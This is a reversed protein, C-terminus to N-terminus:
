AEGIGLISRSLFLQIFNMTFGGIVTACSWITVCIAVINKRVGRDAWIGLPLTAIGYVFLFSSSLLGLETDTLGFDIQISTQVASLVSRDTYNLINIVLLIFFATRAQAPSPQIAMKSKPSSSETTMTM